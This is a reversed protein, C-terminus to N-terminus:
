CMLMCKYIKINFVICGFRYGWFFVIRWCDDILCFWFLSWMLILYLKWVEFIRMWRILFLYNFWIGLMVCLRIKNSYNKINGFFFLSEILKIKFWGWGKIEFDVM